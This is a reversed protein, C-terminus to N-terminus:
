CASCLCNHLIIHKLWNVDDREPYDHRFHAGRSETRRAAAEVMLRASLLLNVAELCDPELVLGTIESALAALKQRAIALGQASRILGAYEWALDKIQNTLEKPDFSPENRVPYGSEAADILDERSWPVTKGIENKVAEVIRHGFVLGDLLSNSALRNAGHVGNCAAEGCAYLGPLNTAGDLNTRIGGMMYHAAPAVPILDTGMDLGYFACTNFITPFRKKLWERELHTVDMFVCEQGTDALERWIARAVVDRPALEAAPHYDPMFRKGQSNRLIGGEGRVAESILFRPAHPVALATPHFQMFEMDMLEAGARYGAALGDGTAIAPNTTNRYLQGLGGTAVVTIPGIYAVLERKETDYALAGLCRGARNTLLDLVFHNEKIVIDAAERCNRVLTRQIEDGTFDRAHVVRPRSHAAERTLVITDGHHDFQAGLRILDHVRAPGETVLVEVAAQDCLGAGAKLTDELHLIPSDSEDIAVAIGGQARETNTDTIGKKTLCTVQGYNQAKLATFLGAIGSGIVLFDTQEFHIRRPDFQILYRTPRM